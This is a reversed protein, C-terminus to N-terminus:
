ADEDIRKGFAYRAVINRDDGAYLFRELRQSLSKPAGVCLSADDLVLAFLEDGIAFGPKAGFIRAGASTGLYFAETATLHPGSEPEYYRKLKSVRTAATMARYVGLEAGGSVDSGLAVKVGSQLLQRVPAIGSALNVNSDPCHAVTAGRDRLLAVERPTNHICHAMICREHLLGCRDYVDAYSDAEPYLERVWAVEALNENLHSQVWLGNDRAIRGLASMLRGSCNPAFRPTLIPRVHAFRCETLWRETERLAVDYPEDLDHPTNWDMNVKGAMAQIGADELAQMLALTADTHVTGFVCARLTGQRRLDAAFAAYVERAYGVDAYRREEPFTVTKLWPLLEDDLGVGRNPYQPAHLHADVFGPVILRDGEDRLPLARYAEPLRDFVGAIRGGEVVLYANERVTLQEPTEASLLHGKLVYDM